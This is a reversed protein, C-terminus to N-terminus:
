GYNVIQLIFELRNKLSKIMCLDGDDSHSINCYLVDLKMLGDAPLSLLLV